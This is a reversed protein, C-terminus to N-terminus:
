EVSVKTALTEPLSGEFATIASLLTTTAAGSPDAIPQIIPLYVALAAALTSLSSNMSAGKTAPEPTTTGGLTIQGNIVLSLVTEGGSFGIAFPARRDGGSWGFLVRTGVLPNVSLAATTGPSGHIFPLGGMSPFSPDDPQVDVQQAEANWAVIKGLYLARYRRRPDLARIIAQLDDIIRGYKIAM